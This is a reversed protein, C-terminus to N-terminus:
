ATAGYEAKIIDALSASRPTMRFPFDLPSSTVGSTCRAPDVPIPKGGLDHEPSIDFGWILRTVAIWVSKAALYQGPCKRRGFGFSYHGEALNLPVDQSIFREPNFTYSDPFAKENHHMTWICPIVMTNAQIKFGCPAWRFVEKMLAACYPLSDIHEFGPITRGDTGVVADVEAQAKKLCNPYLLMAAFFWQITASTTDTGAEFAMGAIYSLEELDLDTDKQKDWLRAALCELNADGDDMRKKVELVLRSYLKMELAHNQRARARWPSLFDPLKDLIPFIDVLHAGPYTEKLVNELISIVGNLDADDDGLRRGYSLQFVLSASFRKCNRAWEGPRLLMDHLFRMSELTQTAEYAGVSRPQLMQTFVARHKKLAPGYPLMVFRKNNSQYKGAYILPKRSSYNQSRRGLLEEADVPDSLVVVHDGALSLHTIPGYEHFLKEFYKWTNETPVQLIHGIFPLGKPGPPYPGKKSLTMVVIYVLMTIAVAPWFTVELGYM